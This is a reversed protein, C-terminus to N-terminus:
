KEARVAEMMGRDASSGLVQFCISSEGTCAILRRRNSLAWEEHRAKMEGLSDKKTDPISPPEGFAFKLNALQISDMAAVPTAFEFLAKAMANFFM